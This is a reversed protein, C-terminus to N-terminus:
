VERALKIRKQDVAVVIAGPLMLQKEGDSTDALAALSDWQGFGMAQMPWARSTWISKFVEARLYRSLKALEQRDATVETSTPTQNTTVARATFANVLQDIEDQANQALNGLRLLATAVEPNFEDKLLPLLQERIRNRTYNCDLNSSDTRFDQSRSSLYELIEDREISLMPRVVTVSETLQRHRPIGGLGKLGTGRLIRHLVTEVQDNLTHATALYRAGESRATEVLFEYRQNRASNESQNNVNPSEPYPGTVKGGRYPRGLEGALCEVFDADADSQEGRWGHNFHAVIIRGEGGNADKLHSIARLLAVSDAGGSVAIVCTLDKWRKVPWSQELREHLTPLKSHKHTELRRLPYQPTTASSYCKSLM